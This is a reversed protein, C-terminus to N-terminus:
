KDQIKQMLRSKPKEKSSNAEAFFVGECEAFFECNKIKHRSHNKNENKISKKNQNKSTFFYFSKKTLYM